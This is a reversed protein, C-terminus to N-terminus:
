QSYQVDDIFYTLLAQYYDSEKFNDLNDSFMTSVYINRLKTDFVEKNLNLIHEYTYINNKNWHKEIELIEENSLDIFLIGLFTQLDEHILYKYLLTRERSIRIEGDSEIVTYVKLYMVSRLLLNDSFGHHTYVLSVKYKHPEIELFRYCPSFIPNIVFSGKNNKCYFVKQKDNTKYILADESLVKKWEEKSVSSKTSNNLLEVYRDMLNSAKDYLLNDKELYKNLIITVHPTDKIEWHIEGGLNEILFRIPVFCDNKRLNPPNKLNLLM